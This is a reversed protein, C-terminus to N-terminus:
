TQVKQTQCFSMKISFKTCYNQKLSLTVKLSPHFRDEKVISQKDYQVICDSVNSFILDLCGNKFNTIHKFQSLDLFSAM